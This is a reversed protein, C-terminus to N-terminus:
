FEFSVGVTADGFEFDADTGIEGYARLGTGGITYGAELDIGKFVDDDNLGLVDFTTSAEFDVGWRNIGAKPVFEMAFEEVGTDYKTDFKGGLSVGTNGLEIAEAETGACAALTVMTAAAIAAIKM